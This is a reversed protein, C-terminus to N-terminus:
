ASAALAADKREWEASLWQEASGIDRRVAAEVTVRRGVYAAVDFMTKGAAGGQWRVTLSLVPYHPMEQRLVAFGGIKPPLVNRLHSGPKPGAFRRGEPFIVVNAREQAALRACRRIVGIDDPDGGRAIFACATERAAWGILPARGLQKKLVWRLDFRGIRALVVYLLLIDFSSQHNSVVIFPGDGVTGGAPLGIHTRIGLVATVADYAICAWTSQWRAIRKRRAAPGDRRLASTALVWLFHPGALFGAILLFLFIACYARIRRIIMM